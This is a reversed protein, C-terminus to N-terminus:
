IKIILIILSILILLYLSLAIFGYIFYNKKFKTPVPDHGGKSFPNCRLIRWFGISGGKILGFKEICGYTYESCTPKFRCFGFPFAEKILGHDPSFIKQYFRIMKLAIKKM